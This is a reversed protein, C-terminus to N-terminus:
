FGNDGISYLLGNCINHGRIIYRWQPVSQVRINRKVFFWLIGGCLSIFIHNQMHHQRFMFPKGKKQYGTGHSSWSTDSKCNSTTCTLLCTNYTVNLTGGGCNLITSRSVKTYGSECTMCSEVGTKDTGNGWCTANSMACNLGRIQISSDSPMCAMQICAKDLGFATNPITLIGMMISPIILLSSKKM